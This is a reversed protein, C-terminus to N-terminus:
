GFGIQEAFDAELRQPETWFHVEDRMANLQHALARDRNVAGITAHLEFGSRGDGIVVEHKCHSSVVTRKRHRPGIQVANQPQPGKCIGIFQGDPQFV